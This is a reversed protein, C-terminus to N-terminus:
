AIAFHHLGFHYSAFHHSALWFRTSMDMHMDHEHGHGHGNLMDAVQEEEASTNYKDKLANLQTKRAANDARASM